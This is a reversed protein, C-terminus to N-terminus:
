LEIRNLLNELNGDLLIILLKNLSIKNEKSYRMLLKYQRSELRLGITKRKRVREKQKTLKDIVM